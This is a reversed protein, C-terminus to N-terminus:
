GLDDLDEGGLGRLVGAGANSKHARVFGAGPHASFRAPPMEETEVQSFGADKVLAVLDQIRSGGAGFRVLQDQREEPHKFDAIVLRGGPKLVRAIESLGHRKLADPLHHMMITNLVVDFTQGPFPLHEIVGVQFDIPL